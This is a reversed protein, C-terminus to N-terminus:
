PAPTAEVPVEVPEAEPVHEHPGQQEAMWIVLWSDVGSVEWDLVARSGELRSSARLALGKRALKESREAARRDLAVAALSAAEPSDCDVVVRGGTTDSTAVDVGVMAKEVGEPAPEDGWLVEALERDREDVTGTLDWSRSPLGLDVPPVPAGAAGALMRDIGGHLAGEENALIYTGDLLAAWTREGLHLVEQGRYSTAVTDGHAILTHILRTMGRPNVAAVIAPDDGGETSAELSITAQKPLFMRLGASPSSGAQSMQQMQRMWPPLDQQQRRQAERVFRDLLATFGPDAGLDAVTFSGTAAPSVVAATEHQKGPRVMWWSGIAAAIFALVMLAGCGIACGLLAKPFGSTRPPSPQSAYPQM